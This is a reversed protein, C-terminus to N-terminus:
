KFLVRILYIGAAIWPLFFVFGIIGWLNERFFNEKWQEISPHIVSMILFGIGLVVITIIIRVIIPLDTYKFDDNNPLDVKSNTSSMNNNKGWSGLAEEKKSKNIDEKTTEYKSPQKIRQGWSTFEEKKTDHTQAKNSTELNSHCYRCKIAEDQIEEACYPCKKM